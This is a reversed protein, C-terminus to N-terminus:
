QERHRCPICRDENSNLPQQQQESKHSLMESLMDPFEKELTSIFMKWEFYFPELQTKCKSSIHIAKSRVHKMLEEHAKRMCVSDAFNISGVCSTLAVKVRGLYEADADRRQAHYTPPSTYSPNASAIQTLNSLNENMSWQRFNNPNSSMNSANNRQGLLIEQDRKTAVFTTGTPKGIFETYRHALACNIVWCTSVPCNFTGVWYHGIVILRVLTM